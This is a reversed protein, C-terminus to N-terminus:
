SKRQNVKSYIFMAEIKVNITKKHPTFKLTLPLIQNGTTM